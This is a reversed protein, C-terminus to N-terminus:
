AELGPDSDASSATRSTLHGRGWDRDTGARAALIGQAFDEDLDRIVSHLHNAGTVSNVAEILYRDTQVRFYHQKGRVREGAWAFFVTDVGRDRADQRHREFSEEPMRALFCDVIKWLLEQQTATLDGGGIGSPADRTFKLAVRDADTISYGPMGLDYHDPYEYAGVLATQRTVFDAPATDHIVAAALQDETLSDLLDFGFGEDDALPNLVGDYYFPQQGLAIPTACVWREDVITINICVHHGLLRMTWTDEFAPRGFFTLFYSGDNRWSQLAPGLAEREYDRLVHELQPISLVKTFTRLPLAQRILDWVLVRQHRDLENLQVGTKDPRPIIDWSVRRPDDFDPIVAVSRQAVDLTDIIGMATLTLRRATDSAEHLDSM